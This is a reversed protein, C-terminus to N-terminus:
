HSELQFTSEDTFIVDNFLEKEEMCKRCWDLRKEKNADCIAQCYRATTFTWGLENRLRATTRTGYKANEAGFKKTLIDKLSSATLEDNKVVADDICWYHAEPVKKLPGSRPRDCVSGTACWRTISNKVTEHTTMIGELALDRKVQAIMVKHGPKTWLAVIRERQYNTLPMKVM